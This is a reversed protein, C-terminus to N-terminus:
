SLSHSGPSIPLILESSAAFGFDSESVAPDPLCIWIFFVAPRPVGEGSECSVIPPLRLMSSSTVKLVPLPAEAPSTMKVFVPVSETVFPFVRVKVPSLVFINLPSQVKSPATSTM